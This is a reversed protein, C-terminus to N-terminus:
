EEDSPGEELEAQPPVDAHELLHLKHELKRIEAIEGHMDAIHKQTEPDGTETEPSTPPIIEAGGGKELFESLKLVAKRFGAEEEGPKHQEVLKNIGAEKIKGASEEIQQKLKEDKTSQFIEQAKQYLNLFEVAVELAQKILVLTLRAVGYNVAFDIILSGNSVGQMEIEVAKHGAAEAIGKGIFYWHDTWDRLEEINQVGARDKFHVRLLSQQVDLPVAIEAMPEFASKLQTLQTQAQNMQATRQQMSQYLHAIDHGADSFLRELDEAGLPGILHTLKYQELCKQQQVSLEYVPMTKLLHVLSNKQETYPTRAQNPNVQTGLVQTLGGYAQTVAQDFIQTQAWTLLHSLESLNM